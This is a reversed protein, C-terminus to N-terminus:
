AKEQPDPPQHEMIRQELRKIRQENYKVIAQAYEAATEAELKKFQAHKLEVMMLEILTKGKIASKLLEIAEGLM